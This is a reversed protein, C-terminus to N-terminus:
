VSSNGLATYVVLLLPIGAAVIISVIIKVFINLKKDGSLIDREYKIIAFILAAIFYYFIITTGLASLSTSSKDAPTVGFLEYWRFQSIFLRIAHLTLYILFLLAEVYVSISIWLWLYHYWKIGLLKGKEDEPLHRIMSQGQNLGLYTFVGAGVLQAVIFIAYSNNEKLAQSVALLTDHVAVHNFLWTIILLIIFTGFVGVVANILSISAKDSERVKRALYSYAIGVLFAFACTVIVKVINWFPRDGWIIQTPDFHKDLHIVNLHNLVILFKGFADYLVVEVLLWSAM